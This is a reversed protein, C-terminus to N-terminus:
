RCFNRCFKRCFLKYYLKYFLKYFYNYSQLLTKNFLIWLKRVDHFFMNMTIIQTDALNIIIFFSSLFLLSNKLSAAFFVKGMKPIATIAMATGLVNCDHLFIEKPQSSTQVLAHLVVQLVM